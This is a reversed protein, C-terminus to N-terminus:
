WPTTTVMTSTSTLRSANAVHQWGYLDFADDEGYEEIHDLILHPKWTAYTRARTRDADTREDLRREQEKQDLQAVAASWEPHAQAQGAPAAAPELSLLPVDPAAAERRLEAVIYAAPQAPRWGLIMWSHLHAVIDHVDLGQDILPRLAYALRRLREGQTWSVQPRVKQAIQCDRAVQFPSRLQQQQGGSAKTSSSPSTTRRSARERSTDKFGGDVEAKESMPNRGRSHPARREPGAKRAASNDVPRRHKGRAKEQREAARKRAEAIARERGADTVGILRAGYGAGSLRHGMATDYVPPIVAAYITATATYKRGPLHLNRKSGHRVWALAGAERLYKVHRKVTAVSTKLRRATGELDYLVTGAEYDMRDALDGAVAQTTANAKPHVGTGVLWAVM